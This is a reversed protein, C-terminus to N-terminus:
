EAPANRAGLEWVVGGWGVGTKERGGEEEPAARALAVTANGVDCGLERDPAEAVGDPAFALLVVDQAVRDGRDGARAHGLRDHRLLEHLGQAGLKDRRQDTGQRKIRVSARVSDSVTDPGRRTRGVGQCTAKRTESSQLSLPLRKSTPAPRNVLSRYAVAWLGVRGLGMWRGVWDRCGGRGGQRRGLGTGENKDIWCLQCRVLPATNRRSWVKVGPATAALHACTRACMTATFARHPHGLDIPMQGRLPRQWARRWTVSKSFSGVYGALRPSASQSPRSSPLACCRRFWGGVGAAESRM